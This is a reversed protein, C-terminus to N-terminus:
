SSAALTVKIGRVETADKAILFVHIFRINKKKKVEPPRKIQIVDCIRWRCMGHCKSQSYVSTKMFASM